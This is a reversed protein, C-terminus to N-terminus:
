ASSFYGSEEWRRYDGNYTFEIWDYARDLSRTALMEFYWPAAGKVFRISGTDDLKFLRLRQGPAYGFDAGGAPLGLPVMDVQQEGAVHVALVPGAPVFEGSGTFAPLTFAGHPVFASTAFGRDFGVFPMSLPVTEGHPTRGSGHEGECEIRCSRDVYGSWSIPGWSRGARKALETRYHRITFRMNTPPHHYIGAPAGAVQQTLSAPGYLSLPPLDDAHDLWAEVRLDCDRVARGFDSSVEIRTDITRIDGALWSAVLLVGANRFTCGELSTLPLDGTEDRTPYAFNYLPAAAPGSGLGVLACDRWTCNRYSARLKGTEEQGQYADAFECDTALLDATVGPNFATGDTTSFRCHELRLSGLSDYAGGLYFIEGRWGTMEVDRLVFEGAYCDQFWFAKDTIDWGDGSAPDAPWTSVGSRQRNGLLVLRSMELRGIRRNSAGPDSADGDVFLGGGRWLALTPDASSTAVLQYDTVPDGGNPGRFDLTTRQPAAGKLSLSRSVVLPHGDCARTDGAPSTRIPCHLRYRDMEFRVERAEIAQAYDIAAQIAERDDTEGDGFAGGQEVSLSGRDPLLRFLRGNVTRFVFRPHAALLEPDCRGDSIYTAAGKGEASHGTSELRVLDAAPSRGALQAFLAPAASAARQALGLAALTMASM